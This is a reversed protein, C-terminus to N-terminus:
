CPLICMAISLSTIFLVHCTAHMNEHLLINLSQVNTLQGGTMSTFDSIQERVAQM